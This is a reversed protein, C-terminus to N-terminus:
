TLFPTWFSREPEQPADILACTEGLLMTARRPPQYPEWAPLSKTRPNGTRIFALWADQMKESLAYAAPTRGAMRGIESVDLTGFIFPLDLAHVAGRPRDEARAKWDFLYAYAPARVAQTELLRTIGIRFTQDTTMALWIAVPSNDEGRAARADRYISVAQEGAGSFLLDARQMLGADDLTDIGPDLFRYLNMEELNTGALVPIGAAVGAALAHYPKAPIIDGDAVPWFTVLPSRRMARNQAALLEDAPLDRLKGAQEPMLGLEELLWGTVQSAEAPTRTLNLAGSQMVARQLLRRARPM